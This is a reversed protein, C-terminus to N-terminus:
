NTQSTRLKIEATSPINDEVSAYGITRQYVEEGNHFISVSGM